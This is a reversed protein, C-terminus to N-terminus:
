IICIKLNKTITVFHLFLLNNTHKLHEIFNDFLLNYDLHIEFGNLNTCTLIECCCLEIKFKSRIANCNFILNYKYKKLPRRFGIFIANNEVDSQFNFEIHQQNLWNIWNHSGVKKLLFNLEGIDSNLIRSTKMLLDRYPNCMQTVMLANLNRKELDNALEMRKKIFNIQDLYIGDPNPKRRRKPLALKM